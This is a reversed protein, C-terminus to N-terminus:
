KTKNRFYLLGAKLNAKIQSIEFKDFKIESFSNTAKFLIEKETTSFDNIDEYSYINATSM